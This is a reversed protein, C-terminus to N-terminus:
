VSPSLGMSLLKENITNRETQSLASILAEQRLKLNLLEKEVSEKHVEEERLNQQLEALGRRTRHATSDSPCCVSSIQPTRMSVSTLNEFDGVQSSCVSRSLPTNIHPTPADSSPAERSIAINSSAKVRQMTARSLRDSVPVLSQQGTSSCASSRKNILDKPFVVGSSTGTATSMSETCSCTTSTFGSRQSPPGVVSMAHRNNRDRYSSATSAREHRDFTVAIPPTVPRIADRRMGRQDVIDTPIVPRRITDGQSFGAGFILQHKTMKTGQQTLRKGQAFRLAPARGPPRIKYRWPM